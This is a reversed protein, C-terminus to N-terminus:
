EEENVQQDGRPSYNCDDRVCVRREGSALPFLLSWKTKKLTGDTVSTKILAQTVSWLSLYAANQQQPDSILPFATFNLSASENLINITLTIQSRTADPVKLM